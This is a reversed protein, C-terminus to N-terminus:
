VLFSVMKQYADLLSPQLPQKRLKEIDDASCLCTRTYAEVIARTVLDAFYVAMVCPEVSSASCFM